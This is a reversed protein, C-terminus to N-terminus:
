FSYVTVRNVSLKNGKTKQRQTIDTLVHMQGLVTSCHASCVGPRRICFVYEVFILMHRLFDSCMILPVM